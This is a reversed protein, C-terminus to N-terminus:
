KFIKDMEADMFKDITKELEPAAEGPKPMFQRQPVPRLGENHIQALNWKSKKGVEYGAGLVINQGWRMAYQSRVLTGSEVLLARGENEPATKKRGQWKSSKKGQYTEKSFSDAMLAEGEEMIKEPLDKEFLVRLKVETDRMDAAMSKGNKSNKFAM